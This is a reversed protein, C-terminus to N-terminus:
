LANRPSSRYYADVAQQQQPKIERDANKNRVKSQLVCYFILAYASIIVSSCLQFTSLVVAWHNPAEAYLEFYKKNFLYLLVDFPITLLPVVFWTLAPKPLVCAAANCANDIDNWIAFIAPIIATHPAALATFGAEAYTLPDDATMTGTGNKITIGTLVAWTLLWGLETTLFICSFARVAILAGHKPDTRGNTFWSPVKSM